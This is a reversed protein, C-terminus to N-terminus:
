RQCGRDADCWSRGHAAVANGGEIVPIWIWARRLDIGTLIVARRGDGFVQHLAVAARVDVVLWGPRIAAMSALAWAIPPHLALHRM